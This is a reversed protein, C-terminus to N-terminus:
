SPEGLQLPALKSLAVNAEKALAAGQDSAVFEEVTPASTSIAGSAREIADNFVGL